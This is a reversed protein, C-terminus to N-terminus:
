SPVCDVNPAVARSACELLVREGRPVRLLVPPLRPIHKEHEIAGSREALSAMRHASCHNSRTSRSLHARLPRRAPRAGSSGTLTYGVTAEFLNNNAYEKRGSVVYEGCSEETFFVGSLPHQLRFLFSTSCSCEVVPM